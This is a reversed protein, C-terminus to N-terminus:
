TFTHASLAAQWQTVQSSLQTKALKVSKCAWYGPSEFVLSLFAPISSLIPSTGIMQHQREQMIREFQPFISIFSHLLVISPLPLFLLSQGRRQLGRVLCAKGEEGPKHKWAQIKAPDANWHLFTTEGFSQKFRDLLVLCNDGKNIHLKQEAGTPFSMPFSKHEWESLAPFHQVETLCM